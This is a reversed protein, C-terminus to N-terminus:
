LLRVWDNIQSSVRTAMFLGVLFFLMCV